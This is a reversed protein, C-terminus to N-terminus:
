ILDFIVLFSLAETCSFGKNIAELVKIEAMYKTYTYLNKITQGIFLCKENFLRDVSKQVTIGGEIGNGSVSLTSVHIFRINTKLCVQILREVGSVNVDYFEKENGYHKVIAATNVIAKINYNIIDKEFYYMFDHTGIDYNLVKIRDQFQKYQKEGFYYIFRDKLREFGKNYSDRVLCYAYGKKDENTM